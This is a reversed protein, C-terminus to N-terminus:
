HGIRAQKATNEKQEIIRSKLFIRADRELAQMEELQKDTMSLTRAIKWAQQSCILDIDEMTAIKDEIETKSGFSEIKTMLRVYKSITEDDFKLVLGV